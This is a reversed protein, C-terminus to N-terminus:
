DNVFPISYKVHYVYLSKHCQHEFDRHFRRSSESVYSKLQSQASHAGSLQQGEDHMVSSFLCRSAISRSYIEGNTSIIAEGGKKPAGAGLGRPDPPFGWSFVASSQLNFKMGHSWGFVVLVISRERFLIDILDFLEKINRYQFNQPLISHSLSKM